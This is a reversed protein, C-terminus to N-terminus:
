VPYDYTRKIEKALGELDPFIVSDTIGIRSLSTLMPKIYASPIILKKLCDAPYVDRDFVDEMATMDRGFLVFAGKQAVIRASNHNGYIAVSNSRMRTSSPKYGTMLSDDPSLVDTISIDALAKENWKNPYLVWVAADADYNGASDFKASSLAFYLSVFPNESWDLLRTPVGFHQMIFFFDWDESTSRTLYPLSRQKFRKLIEQEQSILTPSDSIVPHRFLSPLLKYNTDGAGRFWIIDGLSSIAEVEGTFEGLTSVIRNTVM